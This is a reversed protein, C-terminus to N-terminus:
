CNTCRSLWWPTIVDEGPLALPPPYTHRAGIEGFERSEGVEQCCGLSLYAQGNKLAASEDGSQEAAVRRPCAGTSLRKCLGAELRRLRLTKVQLSNFFYHATPATFRDV